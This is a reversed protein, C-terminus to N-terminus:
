TQFTSHMAREQRRIHHDHRFSVMCM